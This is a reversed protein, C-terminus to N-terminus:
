FEVFGQDILIDHWNKPLHQVVAIRYLLFGSNRALKDKDRDREVYRRLKEVKEEDSAIPSIYMGLKRHYPGDLEILINKGIKFDFVRNKLHFSTTYSIGLATLISQFEVEPVTNFMVQGLKDPNEIMYKIRAASYRERQEPTAKSGRRAALMQAVKADVMEKPRAKAIASMKAKFAAGRDKGLMPSGHEDLYEKYSARWKDIEQETRKKGKHKAGIKAKAEDSHKKGTRAIRKRELTEPSDQRARVTEAGPYKALYEAVTNIGHTKLHKGTIQSFERGCERCIFKM